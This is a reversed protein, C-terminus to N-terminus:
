QSAADWRQKQRRRIEMLGGTCRVSRPDQAEFGLEACLKGDERVIEAREAADAAVQAARGVIFAYALLSGVIAM